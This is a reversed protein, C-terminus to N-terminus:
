KKFIYASKAIRDKIHTLHSNAKARTSYPGILVKNLDNIKYIKYRYRNKKIVEILKSGSAPLNRFSGVQIYYGSHPKHTSKLAKTHVKKHKHLIKKVQTAKEDRNSLTDKQEFEKTIEVHQKKIKDEISDKEDEIPKDTHNNEAIDIVKEVQKGNDINDKDDSISKNQALPEEEKKEKKLKLEPAIYNNSNEVAEFDSKKHNKDSLISKTFIIASLLIIIFLAILTLPPLVLALWLKVTKKYIGYFKVFM